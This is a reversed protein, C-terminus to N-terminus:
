TAQHGEPRTEPTLAGRGLLRRGAIASIWPARRFVVRGATLLLALGVFFLLLALPLGFVALSRYTQLYWRPTDAFGLAAYLLLSGWSLLVMWLSFWSRPLMAAPVLGWLLYWPWFWGSALYYLVLFVVVAGRLLGARSGSGFILAGLWALAVGGWGVGRVVLNAKQLAPSGSPGQERALIDPDDDYRAPRTDIPGTANARVYGIRRLEPDYVRSWRGYQSGVVLLETWQPAQRLIPMGDGRQARLPTATHTAIWWGKFQLPVETDDRTEGFLVRLEGLALEGLGNTYRDGEAGLVWVAFTEPGARVAVLVAATLVAGLAGARLAFFARERWSPLQRLVFVGVLPVLAVAVLKVLGALVLAGIALAPRRWFVLTLGLAVFFAMVVDNHGGLGAEIVFLPNWALLVTGSVAVAPDVRRM